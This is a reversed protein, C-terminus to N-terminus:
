NTQKYMKFRDSSKLVSIATEYMVIRENIQEIRLNILRKLERKGYKDILVKYEVCKPLGGRIKKYYKIRRTLYGIVPQDTNWNSAM